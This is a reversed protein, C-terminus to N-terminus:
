SLAEGRLAIAIAHVTLADVESTTMVNPLGCLL